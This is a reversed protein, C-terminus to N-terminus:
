VPATDEDDDGLDDAATRLEEGINRIRDAVDAAKESAGSTFGDVEDAINNLTDAINSLRTGDMPGRDIVFVLHWLPAGCKICSPPEATM